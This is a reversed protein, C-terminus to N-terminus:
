KLQESEILQQNWVDRFYNHRERLHEARTRMGSILNDAAMLRDEGEAIRKSLIDIHQDKQKIVNKLSEVESHFSQLLRPYDFFLRNYFSKLKSYIMAYDEDFEKVQLTLENWIFNYVELLSNLISLKGASDRHNYEDSPVTSLLQNFTQM